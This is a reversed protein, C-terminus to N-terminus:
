EPLGAERRADSLDDLFADNQMLAGLILMALLRGGDIDVPYHVGAEVRRWAIADAQARLDALRDPYIMGLVEAMVRSFCAHGSPYAPSADLPDVGLKIHSNRLYPRQTHWFNKDAESLARTDAMVRDLLAFTKPKQERTFDNGLLHTMLELRVHQEDRMALSDAKSIHKQVAIIVHIQRRDEASGQAPPPPLLLPPLSDPAVYYWHPQSQNLLGASAPVSASLFVFILTFALLLPLHGNRTQRSTQKHSRM